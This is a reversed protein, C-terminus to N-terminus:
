RTAWLVSDVDFTKLDLTQKWVSTTQAQDLHHILAEIRLQLMTRPM